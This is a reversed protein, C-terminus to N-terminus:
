AAVEVEAVATSGEDNDVGAERALALADQWGLSWTKGTTMSTILLGGAVGTDLEYERGEEDSAQGCSVRMVMAGKPLIKGVSM